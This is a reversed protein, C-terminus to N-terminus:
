HSDVTHCHFFINKKISNKIKWSKDFEKRVIMGHENNYKIKKKMKSDKWNTFIM